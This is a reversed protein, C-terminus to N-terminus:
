FVNALLIGGAQTQGRPIAIAFDAAIGSTTIIAPEARVHTTTM